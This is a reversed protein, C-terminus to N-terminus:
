TADDAAIIRFKFVEGENLDRGILTKTGKIATAGELVVPELEFDGVKDEIAKVGRVTFSVADRDFTNTFKAESVEGSAIAGRAGQAAAQEFGAPMPMGESAKEEVAYAAGAPLNYVHLTEGDGLVSTRMDSAYVPGYGLPDDM